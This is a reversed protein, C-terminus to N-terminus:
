EKEAELLPPITIKSRICQIRREVREINKLLGQKKKILFDLEKHLDELCQQSLTFVQKSSEEM